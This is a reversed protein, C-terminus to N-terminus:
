GPEDAKEIILNFEDKYRNLVKRVRNTYGKESWWDINLIGSGGAAGIIDILICPMEKRAVIMNLQASFTRFYFEESALISMDKTHNEYDFSLHEILYNVLRDLDGDNVKLKVTKM